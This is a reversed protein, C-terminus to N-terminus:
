VLGFKDSDHEPGPKSNCSVTDFLSSEMACIMRGCEARLLGIHDQQLRTIGHWIVRAGITHYKELDDTQRGKVSKKKYGSRDWGVGM